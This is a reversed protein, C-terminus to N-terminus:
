FHSVKIRLNPQPSPSYSGPVSDSLVYFISHGVKLRIDEFDEQTEQGGPHLMSSFSRPLTGKINESFTSIKSKQFFLKPVRNQLNIDNVSLSRKTPNNPLGTTGFSSLSKPFEPRPFTQKEKKYTTPMGARSKTSMGAQSTSPLESPNITNRKM